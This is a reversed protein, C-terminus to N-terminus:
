NNANYLKYITKIFKEKEDVELIVELFDIKEINFKKIKFYNKKTTIIHYNKDKAEELINQIDPKTFNYHDPFILEKQIDLGYEKILQFFNEPNGIGAIALLKKNKFSDINTPKYRSYFIKLNKNINLITKEFEYDKNGNILIINVDILSSLNDRLPGSPLILGNGILQRQNFCIINLNKKIKYDQFGDDLIVTDFGKKESDIIGSVRNKCLILNTFENKILEHEDFHSSYFKKLITPNKGLKSLEKALFISTPTKGTGGIYLNGVCIIPIDFKVSKTFKKKLFISLMVILTIPILVLSFISYKADWFKPKNLKM